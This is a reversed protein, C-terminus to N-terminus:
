ISYLFPLFTQLCGLCLMFAQWYIVSVKEGTHGEQGTHAEQGTHGEQGTQGEQGTHTPSM